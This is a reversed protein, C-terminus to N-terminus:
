LLGHLPLAARAAALHLGQPRGRGREGVQTLPVGSVPFQYLSIILSLPACATMLHLVQLRGRDDEGVQGWPAVSCMSFLFTFNYNQLTGARPHATDAASSGSFM